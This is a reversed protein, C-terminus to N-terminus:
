SAIPGTSSARSGARWQGRLVPLGLAALRERLELGARIARAPGDFLALVGDGAMDVEEGAFRALVERVAGHHAELLEAWAHDGLRAATETSDVLDSVLITKLVRDTELLPRTGTVFEEYLILSSV